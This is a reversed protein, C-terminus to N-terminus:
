NRKNRVEEIGSGTVERCTKGEAGEAIGLYKGQRM